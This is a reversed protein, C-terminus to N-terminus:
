KRQQLLALHVQAVAHMYGGVARNGDAAAAAIHELARAENGLAEYYLGAYLHAFFVAEPNDGAAALMREPSLSDRLMDYIQRMPVRPDAGVPLLEERAARVSQERAVCYFHWAANEVDNPNVLRHDEFQRRCDGYRGAYYLAIGRQWLQPAARPALRAVEDFGRASEEIRGSVFDEVARDFIAQVPAPEQSAPAAGIRYLHTDTRIFFAGDSVAMSALMAGDLTNTALRQFQVGPEIVTTVGEESQFHIRGDAFVPSASYNGGLRQQWQTDGTAADLCTAVGIDSVIYLLGDVLLPSPTLPAGRQTTWAIHTRTVDGTGDARVALLSPDNFGTVIFVLGHGFVPRPVNSFGDPYGVRWIEKGTVPDYSAARRAGVSVLQDRDAVRIVLPTSYAQDWPRRRSTKWRVKGTDSDLAVVFAQDFGDCSFILLDQYLVPSGGNGHQSEYRFQAKWVIEGAATLAATGDAGFHVYVRDGDVVPTPSTRSNKINIITAERRFVEVNVLERGTAADFALVRLSLRSSGRSEREAATLWIRGDAIVPSSWGSGAVPVKWVVNETESWKLPLSRESSHGQGTPGRFQPWDEAGAAASLLFFVPFVLGRLVRLGSAPGKDNKTDARDEHNM